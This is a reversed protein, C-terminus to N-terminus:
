IRCGRAFTRSIPHRKRALKSATYRDTPAKLKALGPGHALITKGFVLRHENKTATPQVIAGQQRLIVYGDPTMDYQNELVDLHSYPRPAGPSWASPLLFDPVTIGSKAYRSGQLRDCEELAEESGDPRDAWRNAGLDGITEALEHGIGESMANEGSTFDSFEDRMVYIIASGDANRDHLAAANPVDPMTNVIRVACMNFGKVDDLSGTRVVYGGGLVPAIDENVYADLAHAIQDLIPATLEGGYRTDVTISENVIVFALEM